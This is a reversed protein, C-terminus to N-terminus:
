YSRRDARSLVGRPLGDREFYWTTYGAAELGQALESAVAEDEEAHSIFIENM